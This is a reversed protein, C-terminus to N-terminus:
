GAGGTRNGVRIIETGAPLPGAPPVGPMAGALRRGAERMSGVDGIVPGQATFTSLTVPLGDRRAAQILGAAEGASREADPGSVDVIVALHPREPPELEKVVLEARGASARWHVMRMADGPTYQRLSRVMDGPGTGGPATGDRGAGGAPQAPLRTPIPQPAVYIPDILDVTVKKRAAFLDFPAGCSLEITLQRVVGRNPARVPIVGQSPPQAWVAPTTLAPIELLVGARPRDIRLALAFPRGAVVDVPGSADLVISRVLVVPWIAGVALTGAVLSALVALWGAGTTQAAGFIGLNLSILAIGGRTPLFRARDRWSM